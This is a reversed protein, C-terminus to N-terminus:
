HGPSAQSIAGRRAPRSFRTIRALTYAIEGQNMLSRVQGHTLQTHPDVASTVGILLLGHARARAHFDKSIVANWIFAPTGTFSAVSVKEVDLHIELGPVLSLLATPAPGRHFGSDVFGDLGRIRWRSRWRGEKRLSAGECSPNVLIMPLEDHWVFTRARWTLHRSLLGPGSRHRWGSPRCDKHHLAAFASDGRADVALAPVEPGALRSGCTQCDVPRLITRLDDIVKDGLASRIDRSIELQDTM